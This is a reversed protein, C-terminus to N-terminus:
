IDLKSIERLRDPGQISKLFKAVEVPVLEEWNDGELMKKRILTGSFEQRNYFKTTRVPINAEKFLKITLPQNSFVADFSPVLTCVHNIWLAHQHIDPIPIIWFIKDKFPKSLAYYIMTFREGATFPNELTYSYQASGIGIILSNFESFIKKVIEFHGKHFPQFRGVFLARM